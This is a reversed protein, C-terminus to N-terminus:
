RDNMSNQEIRIQRAMDPRDTFVGDVGFDMMSQISKEDNVTFAHVHLGRSHMQRVFNKTLSAANVGVGSAYKKLEQIEKEGLTATDKFSYLKVLPISPEMGFVKKLSAEDFSQIIVKPLANDLNLLGASQLNQLLKKEIGPYTSPSKTEIYFNATGDFHDLVEKLEPVRTSEYDESAFVPQKNNFVEGPLYLIVEDFTLDAVLIEKDGDPIAEDHLAILRGDKTMQLDIEIYDAEMDAAMQYSTITHDPAYASAGRHAIVLFPETPLSAPLSSQKTCGVAVILFFIGITKKLMM